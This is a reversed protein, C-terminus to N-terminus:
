RKGALNCRRNYPADTDLHFGDIRQNELGLVMSAVM